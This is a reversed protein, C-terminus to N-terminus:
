ERVIRELIYEVCPLAVGNGWMKYEASDTRPDKLWTRIQNDSKKRKLNRIRSDEDFMKRWFTLEDDTPNDIGLDECWNDPFGQLRGCELPKLARVRYNKNQKTARVILPKNGGGTGMSSKMTPCVSFPGPYRKDRACDDFLYQTVGTTRTSNEVTKAVRKEGRTGEDFDGSVSKQEFLIEGARGGLTDVILFIRKRRQPVGFYQSDLIRWALSHNGGVILGAQKWKELGPIIVKEDSLHIFEELIRRFDEGKNSSLTGRVNEWLLYRPYKGNTKEKMEKIVRIAEYFLSSKEGDLGAREGSTSLDQCPSGFTIIDVPEIEGGNIKHIDGLQVVDPFNKQTVRLPFLEIESAWIPKIGCKTAALPFGGSGDFLSGLTLTKSM